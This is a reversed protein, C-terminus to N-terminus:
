QVKSANSSEINDRGSISLHFDPYIWDLTITIKYKSIYKYVYIRLRLSTKSFTNSFFFLLSESIEIQINWIEFLLRFSIWFKQIEYM